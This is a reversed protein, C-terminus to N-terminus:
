SLESQREIFAQLAAVSVRRSRGIKITPIQHEYFLNYVFRVSLSLAQAAEEMTLLLKVPPQKTEQQEQMGTGGDRMFIGGLM